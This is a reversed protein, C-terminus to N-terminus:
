VEKLYIRSTGAGEAVVRATLKFTKGYGDEHAELNPFTVTMGPEIDALDPSKCLMSPESTSVDTDVYVPNSEGTLDFHVKITKEFDDPGTVAAATAFDDTDFFTTDLDEATELSM